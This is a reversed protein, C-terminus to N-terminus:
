TRTCTCTTMHMHMHMDDYAHAPVHACAYMYWEVRQRVEERRKRACTSMHMHEYAHACGERRKRADSPRFGRTVLGVRVRIHCTRVGGPAEKRRKSPIPGLQGGMQCWTVCRRHSYRSPTFTLQGGMQCWTLALTPKTLSSVAWRASPTPRSTMHM